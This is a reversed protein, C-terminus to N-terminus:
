PAGDHDDRWECVVELMVDCIDDVHINQRVSWFDCSVEFDYYEFDNGNTGAPSVKMEFHPRM